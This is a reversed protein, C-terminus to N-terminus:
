SIYNCLIQNTAVIGCSHQRIADMCIPISNNIVVDDDDVFTTYQNRSICELRKAFMTYMDDCTITTYAEKPWQTLVSAQCRKLLDPRQNRTLTYVHMYNLLEDSYIM